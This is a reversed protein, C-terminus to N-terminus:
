DRRPALGLQGNIEIHRPTQTTTASLSRVSGLYPKIGDFTSDDHLDFVQYALSLTAGVNLYFYGNNPRPFTATAQDFLFFDVLPDHPSPALVQGMPVAGSTLALTDAAIWAHSGVSLEPIYDSDSGSSLLEWSTAPQQNVTRPTVTMGFGPLLDDVVALTNEATPRDSTQVLLGLGAYQLPGGETPFAAIAVEGDMWGFLDDDLDLGTFLTFGSRVTEPGQRTFDSANALISSLGRWFGAVNRGSMVLFTSAPLLTLPSDANAVTPTLGLTFPVADYYYRGRFQM